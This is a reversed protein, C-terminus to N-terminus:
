EYHHHDGQHQLRGEYLLGHPFAIHGPEAGGTTHRNDISMHAHAIVNILKLQNGDENM